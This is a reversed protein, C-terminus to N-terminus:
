LINLVRCFARRMGYMWPSITLQLLRQMPAALRQSALQACPTAEAALLWAACWGIARM